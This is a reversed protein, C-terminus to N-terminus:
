LKLGALGGINFVLKRFFGGAHADYFARAARQSVPNFNFVLFDGVILRYDGGGPVDGGQVIFTLMPRDLLREDARLDLVLLVGKLDDADDAGEVGAEGAGDM